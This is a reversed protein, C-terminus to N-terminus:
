CIFNLLSIIFEKLVYQSRFTIQYSYINNFNIYYPTIIDQLFRKIAIEQFNQNQFLNNQFNNYNLWTKDVKFKMHILFSIRQIKIQSSIKWMYKRKLARNLMQILKLKNKHNRKSQDKLRWAKLNRRKDQNKSRNSNSKRYNLYADKNRCFQNFKSNSIMNQFFNTWGCKPHKSHIVISSIQPKPNSKIEPLKREEKRPKLQSGNNLNLQQKHTLENEEVGLNGLM